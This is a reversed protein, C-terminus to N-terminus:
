RQLFNHALIHLSVNTVISGSKVCFINSLWVKNTVQNNWRTTQRKRKQGTIYPTLPCTWLHELRRKYLLIEVHHMVGTAGVLVRINSQLKLLQIYMQHTTEKRVFSVATLPLFLHRTLAQYNADFLPINLNETTKERYRAGEM